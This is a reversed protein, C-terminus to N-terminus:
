KDREQLRGGAHLPRRSSARWRPSREDRAAELLTRRSWGISDSWCRRGWRERRTSHNVHRVVREFRLDFLGRTARLARWAARSNDRCRVVHLYLPHADLFVFNVTTAFILSPSFGRLLFATLSCTLFIGRNEVSSCVFFLFSTSAVRFYTTVM